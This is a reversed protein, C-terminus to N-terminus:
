YKALITEGGKVNENLAVNLQYDLPLYVDMRSGFRILGFIDGRKWTSNPKAHCVIRRALFGAIQVFLLTDGKETEFVVANQENDLSAKDNYAGLFKGKNYIIQKVTGAEPIRNVHVNFPSMFISIKKMRKNLFRKEDVEGVFIVRGDATSIIRHPDTPISREPSRFFWLVFFALPWFVSAVSWHIFSALMALVFAIIIFPWGEKAITMKM